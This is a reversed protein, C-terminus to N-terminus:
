KTILYIFGLITAIQLIYHAIYWVKHWFNNPDFKFEFKM